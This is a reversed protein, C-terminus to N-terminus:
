KFPSLDEVPTGRPSNSCHWASLKAPASAKVFLSRRACLGEQYTLASLFQTFPSGMTQAKAPMLVHRMTKAPIRELNQELYSLHQLAGRRQHVDRHGRPRVKSDASVHVSLHTGSIIQTSEWESRIKHSGKSAKTSTSCSTLLKHPRLSSLQPRRCM